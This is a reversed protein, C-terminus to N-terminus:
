GREGAVAGRGRLEQGKGREGEGLGGRAIKSFVRKQTSSFFPNCVSWHVSLRVPPGISLRVSLIQVLIHM